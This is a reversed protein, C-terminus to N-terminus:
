DLANVSCQRLGLAPPATVRVAQGVGLRNGLVLRGDVLARRAACLPNGPKSGDCTIWSRAQIGCIAQFRRSGNRHNVLGPANPARQAQRNAGGVRYQAAALHHVGDNLGVASAALQTYCHARYVADAQFVYRAPLGAPSCPRLCLSVLRKFAISKM